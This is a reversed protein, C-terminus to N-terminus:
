KEEEFLNVADVKLNITGSKQTKICLVVGKKDELEDRLSEVDFSLYGEHVKDESISVEDSAPSANDYRLELSVYGELSLDPETVTNNVLYFKANDEDESQYGVYLNLYGKYLTLQNLVFAFKDDGIAEDQEKTEVTVVEGLTVDLVDFLIATYDFDEKQSEEIGVIAVVRALDELEDLKKDSKNEVIYLKEDSDTELYVGAEVSDDQHVTAYSCVTYVGGNSSKDMCSSLLLSALVTSAILYVKKMVKYRKLNNFKPKMMYLFESQLYQM